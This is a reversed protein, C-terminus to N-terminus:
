GVAPELRQDVVGAHEPRVRQRHGAVPVEVECGVLEVALRAIVLPLVQPLPRVHEEADLDVGARHPQSASPGRSGAHSAPAVFGWPGPPPRTSTVSKVGISRPATGPAGDPPSSMADVFTINRSGGPVVPLVRCRESLSAPRLVDSALTPWASRTAEAARPPVNSKSPSPRRESPPAASAAM